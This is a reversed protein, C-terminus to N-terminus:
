KNKLLGLKSIVKVLGEKSVPKVLYAASQASCFSEMASQPTNLATLMVINVRKGVEIGQNKEISRITKATEHGTMEPMMIDMLLLDYPNGGDLAASFKEVAESGSAAQDCEAVDNLMSAVFERSFGDDDIVLCKM